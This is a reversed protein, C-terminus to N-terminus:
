AQARQRRLQLARETVGLAHAAKRQLGYRTMARQIAEDEVIRAIDRLSLKRDLMSEVLVAMADEPGGSGAAVPPPVNAADLLRARESRPLMGITVIGDGLEHRATAQALRQLERVNGPYERRELYQMLAPAIEIKPLKAAIRYFHEFLAPVDELRERLAPARCVNGCIRYYLDLRFRGAAVEEQLDKHTACILRFESTSWKDSGVPKYKQEQIARLLSAQVDLALDGIEDLFLVKGHAAAIAGERDATAGTFAGKVHGFLESGSLERQLTTCDLTVLDGKAKGGKTLERHAVEALLQKGTGSEGGILIPGDGFRAAEVVERLATRWARSEGVAHSWENGDDWAEEVECWRRVVMAARSAAEPATQEDLVEDAGSQMLVAADKLTLASGAGVVVVLLRAGPDHDQLATRLANADCDRSLVLVGIATAAFQRDDRRTSTASADPPTTERVCATEVLAAARESGTV